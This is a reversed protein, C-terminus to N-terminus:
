IVVKTEYMYVHVHVQGNESEFLAMFNFVSIVLSIEIYTKSRDNMKVM